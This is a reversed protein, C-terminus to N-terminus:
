LSVKTGTRWRGSGDGDLVAAIIGLLLKSPLNDQELKEDVRDLPPDLDRTEDEDEEGTLVGVGLPSKM